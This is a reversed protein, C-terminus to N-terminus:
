TGHKEAEDRQGHRAGAPPIASAAEDVAGAAASAAVAGGATSVAPENVRGGAIMPSSPEGRRARTDITAEVGVLVGIAGSM